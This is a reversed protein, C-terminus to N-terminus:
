SAEKCTGHTFCVRLFLPVSFSLFNLAKTTTIVSLPLFFPFLNTSPPLSSIFNSPLHHNNKSWPIDPTFKTETYIKTSYYKHHLNAPQTMHTHKINLFDLNWFSIGPKLIRHRHTAFAVLPFPCNQPYWLRCFNLLDWCSVFFFFSLINNFWFPYTDM